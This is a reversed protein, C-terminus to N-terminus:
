MSKIVKSLLVCKGINLVQPVKGSELVKNLFELLYSIYLKGGNKLLENPIRLIFYTISM